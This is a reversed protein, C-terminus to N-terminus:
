GGGLPVPWSDPTAVVPRRYPVCIVWGLHHLLSVAEGVTHDSARHRMRLEERVPIVHLIRLKGTFIQGALDAAIQQYLPLPHGASAPGTFHARGSEAHILDRDTLERLARRATADSIAFERRLAAISAFRQGASFEGVAIRDAMIDAVQVFICRDCERDIASPGALAARAAGEGVGTDRGNRGDRRRSALLVDAGPIPNNGSGGVYWTGEDEDERPPMPIVGPVGVVYGLGPVLRIFHRDALQRLVRRAAWGPIDHIDKLKQVSAMRTDRALRGDAIQGALDDIIEECRGRMVAWGPGGRFRSRARPPTDSGPLATLAEQGRGTAAVVVLRPRQFMEDTM